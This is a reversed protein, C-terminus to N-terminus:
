SAPRGRPRPRTASGHRFLLAPSRFTPPARLVRRARSHGGAADRTAAQRELGGGARQIHPKISEDGSRSEGAGPSRRSGPGCRVEVAADAAVAARPSPASWLRLGHRDRRRHVPAQGHRRPRGPRRRPPTPRPWPATSNSPRVAPAAATTMDLCPVLTLPELRLVGLRLRGRPRLGAEPLDLELDPQVSRHLAAVESAGAALAAATAQRPHGGLRYGGARPLEPPTYVPGIRSMGAIPQSFGGAVSLPRGEDDWYVLEERNTRASVVPTPDTDRDVHAENQFARFWSVLHDLDRAAATGPLARPDQLRWTALRYLRESRRRVEPRWWLRTFADAVELPASIGPIQHDM